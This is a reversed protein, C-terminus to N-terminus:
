RTNMDSLYMKYENGYKSQINRKLYKTNDRTNNIILKKIYYKHILLMIRYFSILNM